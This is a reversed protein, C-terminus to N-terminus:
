PINNFNFLGLKLGLLNASWAKQRDVSGFTPRDPPRGINVSRACGNQSSPRDVARDVTWLAKSEPDPGPRGPPLGDLSSHERSRAGTSRTTSRYTLAYPMTSRATSRYAAVTLFKVTPRDFSLDNQGSTQGWRSTKPLRNLLATKPQKVCSKQFTVFGIKEDRTSIKEV